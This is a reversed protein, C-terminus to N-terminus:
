NGLSQLYTFIYHPLMTYWQWGHTQSRNGEFKIRGLGKTLYDAKMMETNCKEVMLWGDPNREPHYVFQWFFHYKVGFYKTKVSLQQNTAM